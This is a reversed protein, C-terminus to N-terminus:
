ECHRYRAVKARMSASRLASRRVDVRADSIVANRTTQAHEPLSVVTSHVALEHPQVPPPAHLRSQPLALPQAGVHLLKPLSQSATHVSWQLKEHALPGLQSTVHPSSQVIAHVLVLVHPAVHPAPQAYVHVLTLSQAGVTPSALVTVQTEVPLQSTDHLAVQRTWQEDVPGHLTV